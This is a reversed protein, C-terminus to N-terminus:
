SKVYWQTGYGGPINMLWRFSWSAVSEDPRIAKLRENNDTGLDSLKGGRLPEMVMIPIGRSGLLRVKNRAVQLTWDM